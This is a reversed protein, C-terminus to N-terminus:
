EESGVHMKRLTLEIQSHFILPLIERGWIDPVRPDLQGPVKAIVFSKLHSKDSTDNTKNIILASSSSRKM